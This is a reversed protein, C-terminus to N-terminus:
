LRCVLNVHSQLESTHEESRARHLILRLLGFVREARARVAFIEPWGTRNIEVRSGQDFVRIRWASYTLTDAIIFAMPTTRTDTVSRDACFRVTLSASTFRTCADASNISVWSSKGVSCAPLSRGAPEAMSM